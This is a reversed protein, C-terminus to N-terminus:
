LRNRLPFDFVLSLLYRRDTDTGTEISLNEAYSSLSLELLNWSIKAGFSLSAQYLGLYLSSISHIDLKTGLQLHKLFPEKEWSINLYSYDM